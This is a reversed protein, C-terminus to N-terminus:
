VTGSACPWSLGDGYQVAEIRGEGTWFNCPKIIKYLPSHSLVILSTKSDVAEVEEDM